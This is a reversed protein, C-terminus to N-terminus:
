ARVVICIPEDSRNDDDRDCYGLTWAVGEDSNRDFPNDRVTVDEGANWRDAAETGKVYAACIAKITQTNM